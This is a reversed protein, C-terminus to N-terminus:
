YNRRLGEQRFPQYLNNGQPRKSGFRLDERSVPGQQSRDELWSNRERGKTLWHNTYLRIIQEKTLEAAVIETDARIM